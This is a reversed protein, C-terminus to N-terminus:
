PRFSHWRPRPWVCFRMFRAPLAGDLVHVHVFGMWSMRRMLALFRAPGRPVGEPWVEDVLPSLRRAADPVTLLVFRAAGHRARLTAIRLPTEDDPALAILLVPEPM